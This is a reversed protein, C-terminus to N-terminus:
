SVHDRLHRAAIGIWNASSLPQPGTVESSGKRASRSPVIRPPAALTKNTKEKGNGDGRRVSM